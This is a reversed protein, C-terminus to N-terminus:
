ADAATDGTEDPIAPPPAIAAESASPEPASKPVEPQSVESRPAEAKPSPPTVPLGLQAKAQDLAFRLSGVSATKLAEGTDAVVRDGSLDQARSVAGKSWQGVAIAGRGLWEVAVIGLCLVLWLLILTEKIIQGTVVVVRRYAMLTDASALLAWLTQLQEKLRTM